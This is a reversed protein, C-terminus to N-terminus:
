RSSRNAPGSRPFRPRSGAGSRRPPAPATGRCRVAAQLCTQPDATSGAAGAVASRAGRRRLGARLRGPRQHVGGAPRRSLVGPAPPHAAPRVSEDPRRRVPLPRHGLARGENSSESACLPQPEGVGDTADFVMLGNDPFTTDSVLRSGDRSIAAHWANFSCVRRVKGTDVDIGIMGHPWQTTVIERTGPRWTEHVIWEKAATDREYALRNRSGDRRAVWIRAQYSGAYRFWEADDPHFEPHGIGDAELVYDAAGTATDVVLMRSRDGFSVPVAWWRDDGSVTTTGMAAGVQGEIATRGDDFSFLQEERRSGVEVRWGGGVDTFYVHRGDHSPHVSWEALGEHDTLQVLTGDEQVEVFIEPRGSRHSVFVLHRMADDMAPLYYFPHHNISSHDTVQRVRVGTNPDTRTRGEPPYEM